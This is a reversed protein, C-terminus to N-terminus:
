QENFGEIWDNYCRTGSSTGTITEVYVRSTSITTSVTSAITIAVIVIFILIIAPGDRAKCAHCGEDSHETCGDNGEATQFVLSRALRRMQRPVEHKSSADNLSLLAPIAIAAM